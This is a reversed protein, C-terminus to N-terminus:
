KHLRALITEFVKYPVQEGNVTIIRYGRKKLGELIPKTREDYEKLRVKIVAPVDLTRRHLKGNCVPCGKRHDVNALAPLGCVSCVLRNSNRKISTAPRVKLYIPVVNEKGYGKEFMEILGKRKGETFAEFTTRPSGSFIMGFSSKILDQTKAVMIKYVWAPSNLKGSDFAKRERQIEADNKRTSDHVVQEIYRGTDFHILGLKGALLNAQTGKGSGPPGFIMIIKKM